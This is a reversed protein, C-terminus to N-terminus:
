WQRSVCRRKSPSATHASCRANKSSQTYAVSLFSAVEFVEVQALKLLQALAAMHGTRLQGFRDNLAHLHEILLDRRLPLTGITERVEDMTAADATRGQRRAQKRRPLQESVSQLSIATTNM